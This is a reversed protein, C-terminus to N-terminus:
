FGEELRCILRSHTRLCKELQKIGRYLRLQKSSGHQRGETGVYFKERAKIFAGYREFLYKEAVAINM